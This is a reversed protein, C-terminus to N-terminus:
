AIDRKYIPLYDCVMFCSNRSLGVLIKQTCNNQAVHNVLISLINVYITSVQNGGYSVGAIPMLGPGITKGPSTASQRKKLHFTICIHRRQLVHCKLIFKIWCLIRALWSVMHVPSLAALITRLDPFFIRSTRKLNLSCKLSCYVYM